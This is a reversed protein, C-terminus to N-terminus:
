DSNQVGDEALAKHILALEADTGITRLLSFAALALEKEFHLSVLETAATFMKEYVNLIEPAAAEGLKALLPERINKAFMQAAEGTLTKVNEHYKKAVSLVEMLPLGQKLLELATRAIAIDIDSFLEETESKSSLVGDRVLSVLIASPVGTLRSLYELSYNGSLSRNVSTTPSKNNSDLHAAIAKLSWGREQLTKIEVLRDLHIKSYFAHRGLRTTPPLLGISQYYRITDISVGTKESIETPLLSCPERQKLTGTM